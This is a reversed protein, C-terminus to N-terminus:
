WHYKAYNDLWIVGFILLGIIIGLVVVMVAVRPNGVGGAGVFTEDKKSAFVWEM